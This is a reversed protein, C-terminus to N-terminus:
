MDWLLIGKYGRHIYLTNKSTFIASGDNAIARVTVTGIKTPTLLGNEDITAEGTGNKVAWTVTKDSANEPGVLVSMQLTENTYISDKESNITIEEVLVNTDNNHKVYDRSFSEININTNLSLLFVLLFVIFVKFINKM